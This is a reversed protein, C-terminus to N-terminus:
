AANADLEALARELFEVCRERPAGSLWMVLATVGDGEAGSGVNIWKGGGGFWRLQSLRPFERIDREPSLARVAAMPRGYQDILQDWLAPMSGLATREVRAERRARLEEPSLTKEPQKIV